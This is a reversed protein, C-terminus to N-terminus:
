VAAGSSPIQGQVGSPAGSGSGWWESSIAAVAGSLVFYQRKATLLYSILYHKNDCEWQGPSFRDRRLVLQWLALRLPLLLVDTGLVVRHARLSHLYAGGDGRVGALSRCCLKSAVKYCVNLQFYNVLRIRVCETCQCRKPYLLLKNSSMSVSSKGVVKGFTLQNEFNHRQRVWYDLHLLIM